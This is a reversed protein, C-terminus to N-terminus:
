RLRAKLRYRASPHAVVYVYYNGTRPVTGAWKTDEHSGHGFKAPAGSFEASEGVTFSARNDDESKWSLSVTLTQGKRARIVYSDHSEGGVFGNVPVMSKLRKARAVEVKTAGAPASSPKSQSNPNNIQRLNGAWDKIIAPTATGGENFYPTKEDQRFIAAHVTQNVLDVAIASELHTCAHILCGSSFLFDGEKRVPNLTEFSEMFADYKSRLLKKMRAQIAANNLLSDSDHGEAAAIEPPLAARRAQSTQATASLCFALAVLLLSTTRKM